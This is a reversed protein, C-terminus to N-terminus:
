GKIADISSIEFSVALKQFAALLVAEDLEIELQHAEYLSDYIKKLQNKHNIKQRKVADHFEKLKDLVKKELMELTETKLPLGSLDEKLEVVLELAWDTAKDHAKDCRDLMVKAIKDKQHRHYDDDRTKDSMFDQHLQKFHVTYEEDEITAIFKEFAKSSQSAAAM